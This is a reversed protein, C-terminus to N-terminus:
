TLLHVPEVVEPSLDVPHICLDEIGQRPAPPQGSPHDLRFDLVVETTM